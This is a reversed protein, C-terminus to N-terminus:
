QKVPLAKFIYSRKYEVKFSGAISIKVGFNSTESFQKRNGRKQSIEKELLSM